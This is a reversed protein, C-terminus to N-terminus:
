RLTYETKFGLVYSVIDRFDKDLPIQLFIGPRLVNGTLQAGFTIFHDFRESPKLTKETVIARGLLESLIIVKRVTFGGTIEYNTFLEADYDIPIVIRPGIEFGWMFDGSANNRYSVDGSFTFADEWVKYVDYYNAWQGIWVRKGATQLFTGLSLSWGGEPLIGGRTQIGIYINGIEKESREISFFSSTHKYKYWDIPLSCVINVVSGLPINFYLDYLGSFATHEMNPIDLSPHMFSIGFKAKNEPIPRMLFTQATLSNVLSAWVLMVTFAYLMKRKM